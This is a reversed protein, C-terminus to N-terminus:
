ESLFDEVTRVKAYIGDLAALFSGHVQDAPIDRGEFSLNKTACADSLLAKFM